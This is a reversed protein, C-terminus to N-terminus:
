IEDGAPTDESPAETVTPESLTFDHEFSSEEPITLEFEWSTQIEKGSARLKILEDKNPTHTITFRHPGAVPGDANSFSFWGDEVSGNAAPGSHGEQPVISISGDPLDKGAMKVTGSVAVRPLGDGSGCGATAVISVLTLLFYRPM